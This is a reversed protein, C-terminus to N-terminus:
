MNEDRGWFVCILMSASVTGYCIEDGSDAQLLSIVDEAAETGLSSPTVNDPTAERNPVITISDTFQPIHAESVIGLSGYTNSAQFSNQFTPDMLTTWIDEDWLTQQSDPDNWHSSKKAL